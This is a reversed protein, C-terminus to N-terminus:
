PFGPALAAFASRRTTVLPTGAFWAGLRLMNLAAATALHQLHTKALGLYRARRLGARHVAQSLTGEVGARRAYGEKFASTTQRHRAAQVALHEERPRLTLERGSATARTCNPRAPCQACDARRFAVHIVDNGHRDRAPTWIYSTQGSPCTVQEAAWDIAFDAFAFGENALAQWSSDGPLPGVLDVGYDAQSSVLLKGALYGTDVLHEGPLLDKQALAAHVSATMEVDTTAGPTSEVHTVLHPRDDDCTETLHTKYGIWALDRKGGCRAEPDYPSVILLAGPPLDGAQRWRGRGAEDPAHYQQVWVRRLVDIAPVQRLWPPATPAWVAELLRGGDTGIVEALAEREADAKPLRYNDVRSGYREYWDASVQERLWEPAVVALSNLAHRLTEGVCELRNLVHIAALVHTSDTRQRGRPKLLGRERALTLLRDLLRQEAAGAVLRARFECLVSADFGSDTLELGLLYKWDIRSRVAEAAQRDPLDEAFQLVTVLALRWPAEAPQGRSPFLDAFLADDYLPGLEDRLHLYLTGKPFAARAVRATEEPVPGWPDPHLSM